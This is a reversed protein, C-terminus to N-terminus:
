LGHKASLPCACSSGGNQARAPTQWPATLVAGFLDIQARIEWRCPRSTERHHRVARKPGRIQRAQGGLRAKDGQRSTASNLTCGASASACQRPPIMEAASARRLKVPDTATRGIRQLRQGGTMSVPRVFVEALNFSGPKDAM